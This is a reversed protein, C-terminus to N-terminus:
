QTSGIAQNLRLTFQLLQFINQFYLLYMGRIVLKLNSPINCVPCHSNSCSTDKWTKSLTYVEACNERAEGNPEDASWPQFSQM